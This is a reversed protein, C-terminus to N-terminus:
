LLPRKRWESEFYSALRETLRPNLLKLYKGDFSIYGAKRLHSWTKITHVLSLGLADALHQRTLPFLYAQDKVLGLHEARRYLSMILAALRERANRQGVSTLAEDVMSEERAGLWSLEYALQPMHEFLTWTRNRAFVCLEVDTLAEVSHEAATLLSAQLGVIDGPLIFNLIQRRGDPLSKQRFAWGSFLTFLEADTQGAYIIESGATVLRHDKKMDEIFSLEEPSKDKFSPQLRLPCDRCRIGTKASYASVPRSNVM